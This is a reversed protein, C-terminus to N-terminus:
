RILNFSPRADGNAMKILWDKADSDVTINTRDIIKGM